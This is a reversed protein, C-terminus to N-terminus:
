SYWALIDITSQESHYLIYLTLDCFVLLLNLDCFVVSMDTEHIYIYMNKKQIKRQNQLKKITKSNEWLKKKTNQLNEQSKKTIKVSKIIKKQLIKIM